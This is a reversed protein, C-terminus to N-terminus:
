ESQYWLLRKPFQLVFLRSKDGNLKIYFLIPKCRKNKVVCLGENQPFRRCLDGLSVRRLSTDSFNGFKYWSPYRHVPRLKFASIFVHLSSTLNGTGLCWTMFAFLSRPPIIVSRPELRFHTILRLRRGGKGGDYSVKTGM